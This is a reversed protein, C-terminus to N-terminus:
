GISSLLTSLLVHLSESAEILIIRLFTRMIAQFKVITLLYSMDSSAQLMLVSLFRCSEPRCIGKMSEPAGKVYIDCGPSGFNRVIVSARRLQSVFEFAKLVGLEIPTRQM